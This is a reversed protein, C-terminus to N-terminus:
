CQEASLLQDAVLISIAREFEMLRSEATAPRGERPVKEVGRLSRELGTLQENIIETADRGTQEEFAAAAREFHTFYEVIASSAIASFDHEGAHPLLQKRLRVAVRQIDREIHPRLLKSREDVPKPEEPPEDDGVASGVPETGPLPEPEFTALPNVIGNIVEASLSPFAAAIIAKAAEPPLQGTVVQTTISLLSETQAGNMATLQVDEAGEEEQKKLPAMNLQSYFPAGLGDPIANANEMSRVEDRSYIGDNIAIHYAGFRAGIDARVLAQRMFEILHSDTDKERESLLKDRCEQEIAVLWPDLTDDLFSQNEQELSNYATRSSDGLKHPPLGFWNAIERIEFERTELLQSDRANISFPKLEAKNTLIATRHSNEIGQHMENWQRLFERQADEKMPGPVQIVSSPRANNRLYRNQYEKAGLGLGFSDRAKAIVSYGCLGDYGLGKIHLVNEPLLRRWETDVKTIYLLRENERIPYTLQPLLPILELPEGNGRRLIYAYANGELLVHGMLSQWFVFANMEENPNFRVLQYAPHKDAREKGSASRRYIYLPLKAVTSSILTVARWVASYTLATERSVRIGSSSRGAGLSDYLWDDPDSLPTSPNELSTRREYFLEIM